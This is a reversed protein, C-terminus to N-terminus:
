TREGADSIPVPETHRAPLDEFEADSPPTSVSGDVPVTTEGPRAGVPDDAFLMPRRWVFLAGGIGIFTLIWGSIDVPTYAYNLSVHQSTPIVVMLNPTVRYPGEAGSARWNPFYSTKVLVPSGTRDVDFSISNDDSHIKTVTAPVVPKRPAADITVGAGKTKSVTPHTRVAVRPWSKPGEGALLVDQRSFDMWWDVSADLWQTGSHPGTMVAPDFALPEVLESGKIEYVHWKGTTAIQTLDFDVAAQAVTEPSFALYYRAGLLQLHKVGDKVNLGRYPLDRMPNSPAKSLEAASLFHYPVTASSEFYLGEMSGICENTWYPLLMLAEPTGFRDEASEYEWNARGCGHERGVRAMTDIIGRYEPYAPKREYGSYNWRAWSPLFNTNATTIPKIPKHILDLPAGIAFWAVAAALVPVAVEAWPVRGESVTHVTRAVVWAAIEVLIIAALLFLCLHFLSNIRNDLSHGLSFLTALGSLLGVVALAGAAALRFSSAALAAALAVLLVWRWDPIGVFTPLVQLPLGVVIWAGVAAVVPTALLVLRPAFSPREAVSPELVREDTQDLSEEDLPEKDLAPEDVPDRSLVRAAFGGIEAVGVGALMFVCLYWFPLARANWLRAEPAFRFVFASLTAMGVLALGTRRRYLVSFITGVAALILVWLIGAPFLNHVYAHIKEWGMNNAYSRFRVLFPLTWFAALCAGIGLASVLWVARKRGSQLLFLVFAGGVAFITPLLHCLGTLALLVAALARHRGTRLGRAVVGLFLLALSLSISFAFEGALASAINGGYITNSWAGTSKEYFGYYFLYPVTAIALLPPGPFRMGSLRGFAYAAVPLSLVGLVTVLKFAIGYPLIYALLAILLAPLPFYFTYAPFGSYWAPAWGTIRGQPLLHQQLFHPGWVHAGTDGGAPTTNAVILSPSLQVLVFVVAAIVVAVTIVAELSPRRLRSM